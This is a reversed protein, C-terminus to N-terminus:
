TYKQIISDIITTSTPYQRTNLEILRAKARNAQIVIEGPFGFHKGITVINIHLKKYLEIYHNVKNQDLVTENLFVADVSSLGNIINMRDSERVIPRRYSKYSAVNKDSDIGVILFDCTQSAKDLLDLHSAHFLDFAGHAIGITRGAQHLERTM